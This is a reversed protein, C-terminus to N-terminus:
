PKNITYIINGSAFVRIKDTSRVKVYKGNNSSNIIMRVFLSDSQNFKQMEANNLGVTFTSRQSATVIQSVTDYQASLITYSLTNDQPIYLSTDIIKHTTADYRIFRSQFSVQAPISNIFTFTLSGNDVSKTFDKPIIDKGLSTMETLSGNQIGAGFPLNVDLAPYIKSTDYISYFNNNAFEDKPNLTVSGVVYFSDPVNPFASSLFNDFGQADSIRVVPNNPYIRPFGIDTGIQLNGLVQGNLKSSVNLHYDMPFGGTMPFRATLIINKLILKGKLNTIDSFGSKMRSNIPIVQPTIKGTISQVVLPSGPIISVKVFDNKTITKKLGKSDITRIGVSFTLKTGLTSPLPQIRLQKANIPWYTTAGGSIITDITFSSNNQLLENLVFHTGVDIKLNNDLRIQFSGASFAASQVVISDDVVVTSDNVSAIQQGPIVAAAEDATLAASSFQVSIGNSSKLSFRDPRSQTTFSISDFKMRSRLIKGTLSVTGVYTGGSSDITAPNFTAIISTDVSPTIQNNRLIIPKNFTIKLPLNNTFAISLSGSHIAAYDFQSSLNITDGALSVYYVPFPGPIGPGFKNPDWDGSQLGLDALTANEGQSPIAAIGFLGVTVQQSSPDMIMKISDIKRPDSSETASYFIAGTSDTTVGKTNGQVDKIYKTIDIVPIQLNIQSSPAVPSLPTEMCNFSIFAFLCMVFGMITAMPLVKDINKM